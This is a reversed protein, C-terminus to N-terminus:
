KILNLLSKVTLFVCPCNKSRPDTPSALFVTAPQELGSEIFDHVEKDAVNAYVGPYEPQACGTGRSVIGVQKESKKPVLAGGSEGTCADKGGEPVGACVM